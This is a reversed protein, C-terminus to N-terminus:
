CKSKRFIREPVCLTLCNPELDPSVSHGDQDPDLSNACTKLLRCFNGCTLFSNFYMLTQFQCFTQIIMLKVLTSGLSQSITLLHMKRDSNKHKQAFCKIRQM